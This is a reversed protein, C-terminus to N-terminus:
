QSLSNRIQDFENEKGKFGFFELSFLWTLLGLGVGFWLTALRILLTAVTALSTQMGIIITLMGAISAEAAGLGGPLASAAGVVTSFSLIFIASALTEKGAPQGLNILILYFGIGEGLWSIMGILVALFTAGPRFVTFSGEYFDVLANSFRKILPLKAALALFWYALPRIQSIVIVVILLILVIAFVPWYQPYALVGLTSLLLVAIGDSIREAVIISVGKPISIGSVQNLWVGKLVEGVKGPTLALPFGAIFVRASQLLGFDKVGMQLIYFHWKFFRLTYNFLTFCIVIPFIKWNFQQITARIQTVDGLFSLIILVLFGLLFAPIMRRLINKTIISSQSKDM